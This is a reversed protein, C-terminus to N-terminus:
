AESAVRACYERSDSRLRRQIRRTKSSTQEGSPWLIQRPLQLVVWSSWREEAKSGVSEEAAMSATRVV